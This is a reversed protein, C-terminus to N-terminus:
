IRWVFELCCMDNDCETQNKLIQKECNPCEFKNNEKPIPVYYKTEIDYM